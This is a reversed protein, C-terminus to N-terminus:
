FNSTAGGGGSGGGGGADLQSTNPQNGGMTQSILIAEANMLQWKHSMLNEGTFGHKITKLTRMLAIALIGLLAGAVLLTIETHGLSYYYKFTFASFALVVLSVRLLVLDRNKIGLYLYGIPIFVTLIYFVFAFPIDQGPELTLEMLNISLERVVLYNGSAYVLILSLSEMVLLNYTWLKLSKLSELKKVGVYIFGFAFLFAFPILQQLIGGAEYLNYFLIGAFSIFAAVSCVLDLYRWGAFAFVVLCAMLSVQINDFESLGGIGGIIFGCAHYLLAETVGSKFHNNAIFLKELVALSVLGYVICGICIAIVGADVIMLALLGTVGSIALLTAMFLLIRIIMNPHYFPTKYAEAITSFQETSIFKHKSWRKAEKILALNYVWEHNYASKM